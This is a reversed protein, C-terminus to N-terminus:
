NRFHNKVTHAAVFADIKGYVVDWKSAAGAPVLAVASWDESQFRMETTAGPSSPDAALRVLICRDESIRVLHDGAASPFRELDYLFGRRAEVKRVAAIMRTMGMFDAHRGWYFGTVRIIFDDDPRGPPKPAANGGAEGSAKQEPATEPVSAGVGAPALDSAWFAFSLERTRAVCGLRSLDPVVSAYAAPFFILDDGARVYLTEGLRRRAAAQREEQVKAAMRSLDVTECVAAPVDMM